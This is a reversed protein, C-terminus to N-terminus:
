CDVHAWNERKRIKCIATHDVGLMRGLESPGKKSTLILVVDSERLKATGKREGRTAM